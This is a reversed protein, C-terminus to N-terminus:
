CKAGVKKNISHVFSMLACPRACPAAAGRGAPPALVGASVRGSDCWVLQFHSHSHTTSTSPLTAALRSSDGTHICSPESEWCLRLPKCPTVPILQEQLKLGQLALLEEVIFFPSAMHACSCILIHTHGQAVELPHTRPLLLCDAPSCRIEDDDFVGM